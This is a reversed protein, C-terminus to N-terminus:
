VVSSVRLSNRISFRYAAFSTTATYLWTSRITVSPHMGVVSVTGMSLPMSMQCLKPVCYKRSRRSIPMKLMPPAPLM